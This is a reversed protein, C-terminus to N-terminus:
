QTIGSFIWVEGVSPIKELVGWGRQFNWNLKMCKKLNKPRASGGVGGPFEVGKQQPSYPYKRSSCMGFNAFANVSCFCFHIYAFPLVKSVACYASSKFPSIQICAFHSILTNSIELTLLMFHSPTNRSGGPYSALVGPNLSTIHSWLTKDLFM